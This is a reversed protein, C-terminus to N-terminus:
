VLIYGTIEIATLCTQRPITKMASPEILVQAKGTLYLVNGTHFDVITLGAMSTASINGLSSMFRNGSYDPIIITRNNSPDVRMFGLLGARINMGAHSSNASRASDTSKYYSALFVTDATTIVKIIEDPLEDSITMNSNQCAIFPHTDTHPILKRVNIYKPCNRYAVLKLDHIGAWLHPLM